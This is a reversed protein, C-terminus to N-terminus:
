RHERHLCTFSVADDTANLMVRVGVDISFGVFDDRFGWAERVSASSHLSEGARTSLCWVPRPSSGAVYDNM